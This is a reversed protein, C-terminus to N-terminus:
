LIGRSRHVRAHHLTLRDAHGSTISTPYLGDLCSKAFLGVHSPITCVESNRQGSLSAHGPASVSYFSSSAAQLEMSNPTPPIYRHNVYFNEQQELSQRQQHQLKQRQLYQIQADIDAINAKPKQISDMFPNSMMDGGAMHDMMIVDQTAAVGQSKGRKSPDVTQASSVQANDSSTQDLDTFDFHLGDGLGPLGIDLFHQFDEQSPLTPDQAQWATSSDM